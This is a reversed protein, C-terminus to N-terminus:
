DTDLLSSPLKVGYHIKKEDRQISHCGERDFWDLSFSWIWKSVFWMCLVESVKALLKVLQVGAHIQSLLAIKHRSVLNMGFAGTLVISWLTIKGKHIYICMELARDYSNVNWVLRLTYTAPGTGGQLNWLLSQHSWFHLAFTELM